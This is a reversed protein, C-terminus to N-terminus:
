WIWVDLKFALLGILSFIEYKVFWYVYFSCRVLQPFNIVVPDSIECAPLFLLLYRQQSPLPWEVYKTRIRINERPSM